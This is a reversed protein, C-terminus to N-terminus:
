FSILSFGFRRGQETLWVKAESFDKKDEDTKMWHRMTYMEEMVGQLMAGSSIINKHVIEYMPSGPGRNYAIALKRLSVVPQIQLM